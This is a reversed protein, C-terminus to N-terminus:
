NQDQEAPEAAAKRRQCLETAPGHLASGCCSSRAAAAASTVDRLGRQKWRACLVSRRHPHLVAFAMRLEPAGPRPREILRRHAHDREQVTGEADAHGFPSQIVENGKRSGAPRLEKGGRRHSIGLERWYSIPRRSVSNLAASAKTSASPASHQCCARARLNRSSVSKM